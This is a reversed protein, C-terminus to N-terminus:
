RRCSNSYKAKASVPTTRLLVSAPMDAPGLTKPQNPPFTVMNSIYVENRRMKIIM